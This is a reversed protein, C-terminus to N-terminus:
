LCSHLLISEMVQNGCTFVPNLSTMPEQFIMAIQKGRINRLQEDNIKLLDVQQIGDESFLIEGKPFRATKSSLLRLIALSTVSKGSGSEGAIGVIENRNIKLSIDRVATITGNETVFDIQLNNIQLLPYM